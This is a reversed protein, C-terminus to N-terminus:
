LGFRAKIMRIEVSLLHHIELVKRNKKYFLIWRYKGDSEEMIEAELDKEIEQIEKKAKEQVIKIEIKISSLGDIGIPLNEM